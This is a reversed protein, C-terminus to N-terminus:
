QTSTSAAFKRITAIVELVDAREQAAVRELCHLMEREANAWDKNWIHLQAAYVHFEGPNTSTQQAWRTWEFVAPEDSKRWINLWNQLGHTTSPFARLVRAPPADPSAPAAHRLMLDLWHHLLMVVMAGLLLSRTVGKAAPVPSPRNATQPGSAGCALGAFMAVPMFVIMHYFVGDFCAYATVGLMTAGSWLGVPASEQRWRQLLPRCTRALLLVLPVLGLLGYELLWQVPTSHPQNGPQKPELFLYADAGSGLWLSERIQLWCAGWYDTRESTLEMTNGAATTREVASWWGLQPFPNGLLYSAALALVSLVPVWRLLFRRDEANGCCFWAALAVVMGLAPARSGSWAFGTWIVLTIGAVLWLWFGRPAFYRLLALGALGGAFVHGGMLRASWYTPFFMRDAGVGFFVMFVGGAAGAAMGALVLRVAPRCTAIDRAIWAGALVWIVSASMVLSRAVHESGLAAILMAVVAWALLWGEMRAGPRRDRWGLMVAPLFALPLARDTDVPLLLLLPLLALAAALGLAPGACRRDEASEPDFGFGALGRLKSPSFFMLRSTTPRCKGHRCAM